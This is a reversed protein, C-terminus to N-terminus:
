MRKSMQAVQLQHRNKTNRPKTRLTFNCCPCANGDWSLFLECVNCRKQGSEYRGINFQKTAKYQVCGGKCTM